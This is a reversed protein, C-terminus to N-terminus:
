TITPERFTTDEVEYFTARGLGARRCEGEAVLEELIAQASRLPIGLTEAAVRATTGRMGGLMRLLRDEIGRGCRADPIAIPRAAHIAIRGRERVLTVGDILESRIRHALLGLANGHLERKWGFGYVREFLEGESLGDRGALALLPMAVPVRGDRRKGTSQAALEVRSLGLGPTLVRVPRVTEEPSVIVHAVPAGEAGVDCLAHLGQPPPDIVGRRWREVEDTVSEADGSEADGGLLADLARADERILVCRPDDRLEGIRSAYAARDGESAARAVRGWRLARPALETPALDPDAPDAARGGALAREDDIWAHWPPPASARLAGLIRLALHPCGSARRVRALVVNALYEQSLLRESRAMRSARRATKVADELAGLRLATLARTSALELALPAIRLERAETELGRLADLAGEGVEAELSLALELARRRLADIPGVAVGEALAVAARLMAVDRVARGLLGLRLAGEIGGEGHLASPIAPPTPRIGLLHETAELALQADSSATEPSRPVSRLARADGADARALAELLAERSM